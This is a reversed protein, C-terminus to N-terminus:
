FKLINQGKWGLVVKLKSDSSKIVTRRGWLVGTSDRMFHSM